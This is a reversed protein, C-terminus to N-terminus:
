YGRFPRDTPGPSGNPTRQQLIQQFQNSVDSDVFYNNVNADCVALWTEVDWVTNINIKGPVRGGVTVGQMRFDAELFEFLRYIRAKEDYWPARHAFRNKAKNTNPDMGGTMFQQTLEHPKFGAVELSEMPTILTRDMFALWDFPNVVPANVQFFTNQPQGMLPQQPQQPKQQTVDAAYPQNRGTSYYQNPTTSTHAGNTDK